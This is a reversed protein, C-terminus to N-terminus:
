APVFPFTNHAYIIAAEVDSSGGFLVAPRDAPLANLQGTLSSNIERSLGFNCTITGLNSWGARLRRGRHRPLRRRQRRPLARLGGSYDAASGLGICACACGYSGAAVVENVGDGDIDVVLPFDSDM